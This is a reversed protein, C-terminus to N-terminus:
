FHNSHLLLCGGEVLGVPGILDFMHSMKASTAAISTVELTGSVLIENPFTSDPAFGINSESM